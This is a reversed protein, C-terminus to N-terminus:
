AAFVGARDSHVYKVIDDCMFHQLSRHTDATTKTHCPYFGIYKTHLDYAMLAFAHGGMSSSFSGGELGGFLVFRRLHGAGLQALTAGVRPPPGDAASPVM